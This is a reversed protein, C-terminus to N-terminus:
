QQRLAAPAPKAAMRAFAALDTNFREPEELFPAHGVGDFWGATAGPCHSLIYDGMAPLVVTDSRGHTMRLPVTVTQLVPAFDLERQILFGRVKPHVVMNYALAAEFDEAPIEKCICARLFNRIALINTPLDPACAPPAHELFGPGVPHRIGQPGDRGGRRRFPHRCYGRRWPPAPLRLHCLRWLVLRGPHPAQALATRHRRCYRRGM